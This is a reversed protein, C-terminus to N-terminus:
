NEEESIVYLLNLFTSLPLWGWNGIRLKLNSNMEIDPNAKKLILHTQFLQVIASETTGPYYYNDLLSLFREFTTIMDKKESLVWLLTLDNTPIGNLIVDILKLKVYNDNSKSSNHSVTVANAYNM